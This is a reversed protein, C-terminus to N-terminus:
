RSLSYIGEVGGIQIQERSQVLGMNGHGFFVFFAAPCKSHKAKNQEFVCFFNVIASPAPCVLSGHKKEKNCSSATLTKKLLFWNGDFTLGKVTNTLYWSTSRWFCYPDNILLNDSTSYSNYILILLLLRDVTSQCSM